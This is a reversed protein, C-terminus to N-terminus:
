RKERYKIIDKAIMAMLWLGRAISGVVLIAVACEGVTVPGM